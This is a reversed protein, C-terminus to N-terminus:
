TTPDALMRWLAEFAVVSREEAHAPERIMTDMTADAIASALTLVFGLPADGMPGASRAREILGAMVRHSDSVFRHSDETIEEAVDLQALTSRKEPNTAAWALWQRWMHRVLERTEGEDPLGAVAASGMEAKLALYLENLLVNKTEFYVFLSGAAVGAEKAIAATSVGLGQAAIM